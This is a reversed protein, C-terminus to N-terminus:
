RGRMQVLLMREYVGALLPSCCAYMQLRPKNSFRLPNLICRESLSSAAEDKATATADASDNLAVVM